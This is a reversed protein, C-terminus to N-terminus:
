RAAPRAAAFALSGTLRTVSDEWTWARAEDLSRHKAAVLVAPDSVLQRLARTVSGPEEPRVLLAAHGGAEVQGGRDSTVVALGSAKAEAIVLGYGEASRSPLCLVDHERMIPAMADTPIRGLWAAGSRAAAARVEEWFAGGDHGYWWVGGVVTLEIPLGEARLEAVAAVVLDTGKYPDVRGACLVRVTPSPTEWDPRPTFTRLNAANPVVVVKERPYGFDVAWRALHQSVVVVVDALKLQAPRQRSHHIENHLWIVVTAGPVVRRLWRPAVPDNHAVVIDPAPNCGHLAKTVATVHHDYYPWDWHHLGHRARSVLRQAVSLEARTVVPVAVVQGVSYPVASSIRTLVSVQYGKELLVLSTEAIVTAVAGGESPTYYEIPMNVHCLHM